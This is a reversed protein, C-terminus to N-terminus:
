QAIASLESLAGRVADTQLLMRRAIDSLTVWGVFHNSEDMVPVRRVHYSGMIDLITELTDTPRCSFITTSMIARVRVTRNDEGSAVVRFLIDRDTIIGQLDNPAGVPLAGVDLDGMLAAAEQATANPEIFEIVRAMIDSAQM